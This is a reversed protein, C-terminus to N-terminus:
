ASQGADTADEDTTDEDTADEDTTDEDTTDEDTTDEDVGDEGTTDEDGGDEIATDDDAVSEGAVDAFGCGWVWVAGVQAYFLVLVGVFPVFGFVAAVLNAALLIGVGYLWPVAYAGDLAVSRLVGTDFAAGFEGTRAYNALAIPTLYGFALALVTSLALGGFLGVLGFALGVDLGTLFAALATGVTVMAVLIPVFQYVLVVVAAVLGERFLTEWDDFVPPEDTGAMGSRLVRLLYGLLFVAPVVLPAFLTLAGGVVMTTLWEEDNAPYRVVTDLEPAM